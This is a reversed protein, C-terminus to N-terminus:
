SEDQSEQTMRALASIINRYRQQLRKKYSEPDLGAAKAQEAIMRQADAIGPWLQGAVAHEFSADYDFGFVALSPLPRSYNDSLGIQRFPFGTAWDTHYGIKLNTPNVSVQAHTVCNSDAVKFRSRLMQTLTAASHLQAESLQGGETQSELAISLFSANLNVYAGKGDAWISKGAHHALDTERVVRYVRGFRDIVFHYSRQSRVYDLLNRGIRKLNKVAAPDFAVQHSETSHFVIGAPDERWTVPQDGSDGKAATAAYVPYARRPENSVAFENEIRLGNSYLDFRDNQEVPWVEPMTRPAGVAGAANAPREPRPRSPTSAPAVIFALLALAPIILWSLRKWNTLAQEFRVPRDAAKRLYRLREVPDDIQRARWEIASARLPGPPRPAEAM